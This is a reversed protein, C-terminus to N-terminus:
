RRLQNGALRNFWKVVSARRQQPSVIELKDGKDPITGMDWKPVFMWQVWERLVTYNGAMQGLIPIFLCM